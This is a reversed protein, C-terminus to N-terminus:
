RRKDKVQKKFVFLFPTERKWSLIYKDGGPM